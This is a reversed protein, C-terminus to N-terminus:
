EFNTSRGQLKHSSTRKACQVQKESCGEIPSAVSPLSPIHSSDYPVQIEELGHNQQINVNNENNARSIELNKASINDESTSTKELSGDWGDSKVKTVIKVESYYSKEIKRLKDYRFTIKGGKNTHKYESGFMDELLRTITNKYLTYDSTHYENSGNTEGELNEKIFDWVDSSMVDKYKGDVLKMIVHILIAEISGKKRSNKNDIFTQFTEEVETQKEKEGEFSHIKKWNLTLVDNM